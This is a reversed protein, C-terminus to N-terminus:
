IPKCKKCFPSWTSPINKYKNKILDYLFECPLAKSCIKCPILENKCRVSFGSLTFLESFIKILTCNDNENYNDLIIIKKNKVKLNDCMNNWNKNLDPYDDSYTDLLTIFLTPYLDDMIKKVDGISPSNKIKNIYHEKNTPDSYM